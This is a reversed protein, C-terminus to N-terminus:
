FVFCFLVFLNFRLNQIILLFSPSTFLSPSLFSPFTQPHALSVPLARFHLSPFCLGMSKFTGGLFYVTGQLLPLRPFLRSGIERPSQLWGLIKLPLPGKLDLSWRQKSHDRPSYKYPPTGGRQEVFSRSRGESRVAGAGWDRELAWLWM